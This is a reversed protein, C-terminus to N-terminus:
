EHGFGQIKGVAGICFLAVQVNTVTFWVNTVGIWCQNSLVLCQNSDYLCQNSHDLCQNSHGLCQNSDHLVNTVTIWHMSSFGRMHVICASVQRM